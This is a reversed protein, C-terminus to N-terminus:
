KVVMTGNMLAFHGPFSCIFYYTGAEPATFTITDSEKPGLLKTHALIKDKMSAPIYETAAAGAAPGAIVAPAVGKALIVLNHGMAVKPLNGVNNLTVKVTDGSTVSFSSKNFKMTDNSEIAIEVTEASSTFALLLVATLLALPRTNM